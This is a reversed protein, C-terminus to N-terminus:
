APQGGQLGLWRIIDRRRLMGSLHGHDVVPIQRVDRSTLKGLAEASDEEPSVTALREVPTMIDAVTVRDWTPSPVKRVDELCVLGVLRDGEVVPFAHDDTGLLWEHILRSVTVDPPVTPVDARMVRAVPVDRLLDEVAVRRSSAVAASNLFWGIFALWM